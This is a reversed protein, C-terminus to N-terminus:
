YDEISFEGNRFAEITEYGNSDALIGIWDDVVIPEICDDNFIITIEHDTKNEVTAIFDYDRGTEKVKIQENEFIMIM